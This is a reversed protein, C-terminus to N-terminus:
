GGDVEGEYCTGGVGAKPVSEGTAASQLRWAWVDRRAGVDRQCRAPRRCRVKRYGMLGMIERYKIESIRFM